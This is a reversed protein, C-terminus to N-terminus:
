PNKLKFDIDLTIGKASENADKACLYWTSNNTDQVIFMDGVDLNNAPIDNRSVVPGTFAGSAIFICSIVSMCFTLSRYLKM